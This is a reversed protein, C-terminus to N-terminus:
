QVKKILHYALEIIEQIRDDGVISSAAHVLRLMNLNKRCSTGKAFYRYLPKSYKFGGEEALVLIKDLIQRNFQMDEAPLPPNEIYGFACLGYSELEGAATLYPTRGIYIALGLDIAESSPSWYDDSFEPHDFISFVNTNM